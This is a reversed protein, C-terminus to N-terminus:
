RPSTSIGTGCCEGTHPSYYIQTHNWNYRICVYLYPATKVLSKFRCPSIEELGGNTHNRLPGSLHDPFVVFELSTIITYVVVAVSGVDVYERGPRM